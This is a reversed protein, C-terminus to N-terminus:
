NMNHKHIFTRERREEQTTRKFVSVFGSFTTNTNIVRYAKNRYTYKHQVHIVNSDSPFDQILTNPCLTIAKILKVKRLMLLIMVKFLLWNM